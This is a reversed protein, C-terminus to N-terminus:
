RVRLSRWVRCTLIAGREALSAVHFRGIGGEIVPQENRAAVVRTRLLEVRSACTAVFIQQGLKSAPQCSACAYKIETATPKGDAPEKCVLVRDDAYVDRPLLEQASAHSHWGAAEDGPIHRGDCKARLAEINDEAKVRNKM